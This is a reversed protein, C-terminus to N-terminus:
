RVNIKLCQARGLVGVCDVLVCKELVERQGAHQALAHKGHAVAVVVVPDVKLIEHEADRQEGVSCLVVAELEDELHVVDLVLAHDGAALELHHEVREARNVRFVRGWRYFYILLYITLM